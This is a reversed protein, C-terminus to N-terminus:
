NSEYHQEDAEPARNSDRDENYFGFYDLLKGIHATGKHRAENGAELADRALVSLLDERKIQVKIRKEKIDSKSAKRKPLKPPEDNVHVGIRHLLGYYRVLLGIHNTTLLQALRTRSEGWHSTHLEFYARYQQGIDPNKQIMELKDINQYIEIDLLRLLANRELNSIKDAKRRDQWTTLFFVILAGVLGSFLSGFLPGLTGRINAIWGLLSNFDLFQM